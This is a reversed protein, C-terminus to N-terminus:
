QLWERKPMHRRGDTEQQLFDFDDAEQRRLVEWDVSGLLGASPEGGNILRLGESLADREVLGLAQCDVLGQSEVLLTVLVHRRWEQYNQPTWERLRAHIARYLEDEQETMEYTEM